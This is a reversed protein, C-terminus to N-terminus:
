SAPAESGAARPEPEIDSEVVNVVQDATDAVLWLEQTQAARDSAEYLNSGDAAGANLAFDWTNSNPDAKPASGFKGYVIGTNGAAVALPMLQVSIAHRRPNRPAVQVPNTGVTRRAM